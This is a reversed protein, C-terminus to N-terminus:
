RALLFHLTDPGMVLGLAFPLSAEQSWRDIWQGGLEPSLLFRMFCAGNSRVWRSAVVFPSHITFTCRGEASRLTLEVECAVSWGRGTPCRTKLHTVGAAGSLVARRDVELLADRIDAYARYREAHEGRWSSLARGAEGVSALLTWSGALTVGSIALAVALELVTFGRRAKM